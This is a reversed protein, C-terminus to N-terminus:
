LFGIPNRIEDVKNKNLQSPNRYIIEVLDNNSINERRNLAKRAAENVVYEIEAATYFELRDGLDLWDIIEQPRGKM